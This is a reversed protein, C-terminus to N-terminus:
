QKEPRLEKGEGEAEIIARARPADEDIVMLRRPIAGATGELVSTHADLVFSEIGQDKLVAGAWSLLVPDNTRILEIVLTADGLRSTGNAAQGKVPPARVM